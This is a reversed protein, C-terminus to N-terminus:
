GAQTSLYREPSLMFSTGKKNVMFWYFNRKQRRQCYIKLWTKSEQVKQRALILLEKVKQFFNLHYIGPEITPQSVTKKLETTIGSVEEIQQAMRKLETQLAAIERAIEEEQYSYVLREGRRKQEFFLREKQKIEREEKQNFASIQDKSQDFPSFPSKNLLQELATQPSSVVESPPQPSSQGIDRLAEFVGQPKATTKKKKNDQAIAM